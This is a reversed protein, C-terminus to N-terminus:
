CRRCLLSSDPRSGTSICAAASLNARITKAGLGKRESTPTASEPRATLWSPVAGGMVNGLAGAVFPIWSYAAIDALTFGREALLEAQLNERNGPLAELRALAAILDLADPTQAADYRRDDVLAVECPQAAAQGIQGSLHRRGAGTGARGPRLRIQVGHCLRSTPAYGDAAVDVAGGVQAIELVAHEEGEVVGPQHGQGSCRVARDLQHGLYAIKVPVGQERLKMALPAIFFCAQLRGAKFAEAM